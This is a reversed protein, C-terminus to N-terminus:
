VSNGINENAETTIEEVENKFIDNRGKSRKLKNEIAFVIESSINELKFVQKTGNYSIIRQNHDENIDHIIDHRSSRILIENGNICLNITPIDFISAELVMTSFFNLLVCTKSLYDITKNQDFSSNKFFLNTNNIEPYDLIVFNYKLLTKFKNFEEEYIFINNKKRLYIPHLRIILKFKNLKKNKSIEKCLYDSIEYNWPYANPSKTALYIFDKKEPLNKRLQLHKELYGNGTVIIKEEELEHYKILDNKM